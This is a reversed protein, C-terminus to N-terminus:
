LRSWKSLKKFLLVRVEVLSTAFHLGGDHFLDWTPITPAGHFKVAVGPEIVEIAASVAANFFCLIFGLGRIPYSGFLRVGRRGEAARKGPVTVPFPYIPLFFSLSFSARGGKTGIVQANSLECAYLSRDKAARAISGKKMPLGFILILDSRKKFVSNEM